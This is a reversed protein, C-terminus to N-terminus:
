AAPGPTIRLQRAKGGIGTCSTVGAQHLERVAARIHRERAEGLVGEMVEAQHDYIVFTGQKQLIRRINARITRM